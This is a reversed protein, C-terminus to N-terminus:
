DLNTIIKSVFRLLKTVDDSNVEGNNDVDGLAAADSPLLEIKSVHRLLATVDDSNIEGDKNVDGKQWKQLIVHVNSISDAEVTVDASGNLEKGDVTAKAKVTYTGTSVTSFSYTNGSVTATAVKTGDKYLEVAAGSVAKGSSDKVTGSVTAGPNVTVTAGNVVCNGFANATNVGGDDKAGGAVFDTIASHLDYTTSNTVSNKEFKAVTTMVTVSTLGKGDDSGGVGVYGTDPTYDAVKYPGHNGNEKGDSQKLEATNFWYYWNPDKAQVKKALKADSTPLRFQFAPIPADAEISITYTVYVDGTSGVCVASQSPTVSLTVTKDSLNVTDASATTVTVSALMVLALLLSLWRKRM